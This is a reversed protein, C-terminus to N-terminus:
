RISQNNLNQYSQLQHQELLNQKIHLRWMQTRLEHNQKLNTEKVPQEIKVKDEDLTEFHNESM